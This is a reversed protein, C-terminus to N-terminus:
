FGWKSPYSSYNSSKFSCILVSPSSISIHSSLQFDKQCIKKGHVRNGRTAKPQCIVRLHCFPSCISFLQWLWSHLFTWYPVPSSIAFHPIQNSCTPFTTQFKSDPYCSSPHLPPSTDWQKVLSHGAGAQQHDNGGQQAGLSPCFIKFHLELSPSSATLNRLPQQTQGVYDPAIDLCKQETVTRWM